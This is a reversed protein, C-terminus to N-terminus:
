YTGAACLPTGNRKSKASVTVVKLLAWFRTPPTHSLSRNTGSGTKPSIAERVAVSKRFFLRPNTQISVCFNHASVDCPVSVSVM